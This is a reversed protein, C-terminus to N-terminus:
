IKMSPPNRFSSNLYCFLNSYKTLFPIFPKIAQDGIRKVKMVVMDQGEYSKGIVEQKCYDFKAELDKFWEYIDDLSHYSTWDMGQSYDMGTKEELDIQEGMDKIMISYDMGKEEIWETLAEADQPSTRVNVKTGETIGNWFDFVNEDKLSRLLQAQHKDKVLISYVQHGKYSVKSTTLTLAIFPLLLQLLHM